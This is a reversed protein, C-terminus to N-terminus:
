WASILDYVLYHIDDLTLRRQHRSNNTWDANVDAVVIQTADASLVKGAHTIGSLMVVNVDKGVLTELNESIKSRPIRITRKGM